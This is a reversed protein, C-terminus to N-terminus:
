GDCAPADLPGEWTEANHKAMIANNNDGISYPRHSDYSELSMEHEIIRSVHSDPVHLFSRWVLGEHQVAKDPRCPNDNTSPPM